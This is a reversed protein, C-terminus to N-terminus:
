GAKLFRAGEAKNFLEMLVRFPYGSPTNLSPDRDLLNKAFQHAEHLLDQHLSLDAVRYHPMGSQRLGMIEGGGRLRLDEEAIKFGDETSRMVELRARSTQSLPGQYLLICNSALAGRGIRGRLQHLQALGFREAHEIIMVTAEEVHVGVEIVTTAVLLQTQGSVFQAMQEQRENPKQKGHVLSVRGPYRKALQEFRDIAAALDLTESEEVLPCVWYIREGRNMIEILRAEIEAMRDISLVKTLIPKRGAPKQRLYTCPLDGYAAMLLTRPIPTATMVLCDVRAGKESLALRQAVGFRHQEDIVAFALNQFVVDEQILAHTGILLQIEGSALGALIRRREKATTRGTLLELQLGAAAAWAKMTKDHQRALIETPALLAAQGGAAIGNLMAMFAVITKGSGVDGQLLRVMVEPGACDADIEELAREQDQTLEFPLVERVKARLDELGLLARPNHRVDQRRAMVLSIQDALLEDFALRRRAPNEPELDQAETPHHVLHLAQTFTPWRHTQRLALPLWDAESVFTSLISEILKKLQKQTLQSTLPYVAQQGEWQSKESAPGIFDPHVMQPRDMFFDVRGSVLRQAGMPLIKQLHQAYSKFFVLEGEGGADATMVRYASTKAGRAPAQHRVVTVMTTVLEGPRAERMSRVPRRHVLQSPLHLALDLVREGCLRRLVLELGPGVGKVYRLPRLLTEKLQNLAFDAM